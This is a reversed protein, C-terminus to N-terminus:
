CTGAALPTAGARCWSRRSTSRWARDRPGRRAPVRRPRRRPRSSRASRRTSTGAPPAPARRRSRRPRRRAHRREVGRAGLRVAARGHRLAHPRGLLRRDAGVHGRLRRGRRWGARVRSGRAPQRREARVPHAPATEHRRRERLRLAVRANVAREVDGVRLEAFMREMVEAVVACARRIADVGRRGQARAAGYSTGRPQSSPAAPRWAPARPRLRPPGGRRRRARARRAREALEPSATPPPARLRRARPERRGRRGGDLAPVISRGAAAVRWPSPSSASSSCAPRVGHPLRDLRREHGRCPTSGPRRPAGRAPPRCARADVREHGGRRLDDRAAEAHRPRRARRRAVASRTASAGSRRLRRRRGDDDRIVDGRRSRCGAPRSCTGSTRAARPQRRRGAPTADRAASSAGPPRARASSGSRCRVGGRLRAHVRPRDGNGGRWRGAGGSDARFGYHTM